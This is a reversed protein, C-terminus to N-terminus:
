QTGMEALLVPVISLTLFAAMEELASSKEKEKEGDGGEVFSIVFPIHDPRFIFQGFAFDISPSAGAHFSSKFATLAIMPKIVFIARNPVSCDLNTPLSVFLTGFMCNVTM